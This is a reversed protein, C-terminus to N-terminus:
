RMKTIKCFVKDNGIYINEVFYHFYANKLSKEITKRLFVTIEISGGHLFQFFKLHFWGHKLRPEFEKFEAESIGSKIWSLLRM